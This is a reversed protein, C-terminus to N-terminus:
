EWENEVKFSVTRGEYINGSDFTIKSKVKWTGAADLINAPIDYYIYTADSGDITATWEGETQDDDPKLYKIQLSTYNALDTDSAKLKLRLPQDLYIM